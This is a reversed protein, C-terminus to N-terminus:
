AHGRRSRGRWMSLGGILLVLTAPEPNQATAGASDFSRDFGFHESLIALDAITTMGDANFDAAAWGSELGFNESLVALDAIGVKGDLNADGFETDLFDHVLMTLDDFNVIGDVTLDYLWTDSGFAGVLQDIDSGNRQGNSDFDTRRFKVNEVEDIANQSAGATIIADKLLLLDHTDVLGDGNLDAAPNFQTNQSYLVQEFAGDTNAIDFSNISGDFNLDGFGGGRVSGPRVGTIRQINSTGTQEFTVLTFVNNGNPIGFLGTKFVGTAKALKDTAGQGSAVMDHIESDSVTAPLNMLVHVSDATYDVSEVFIDNDGASGGFPTFGSIASVPPLRDVYIAKKFSSYVAPGGDTRHRYARAELFHVGEELGALDITQIFEGDGRPGNIGGPGILPSSKDSFFEFGYSVDGPATVDVVGNHNIDRGGDLRLMANDGDAFVDRLDPNGLLNVPVTQLRVVLHDGKAVHLDTLRQTGNEFTNTPTAGPLVDHVGAVLELGAPAVPTPLGYVLYGKGHFNNDSSNRLFRVNVKNVGGEEFVQVVSPIDDFPDVFPDDANGTLEILYTGPAFGVNTLTRSDFGSDLRNSLLTIASSVREFAYNEKELWREAYNGRGHSNRIQVLRKVGDGDIGGLPDRRSGEPFDREEGFERSNFYVVTNGPMMLTYAYAVENLFPTSPTADHSQVFTVGSSGNHLTDGQGNAPSVDLGANAIDRWDNQFGNGTLNDLMAFALKFDLVDRNGGVRGPDNPDIDKRIFPHLVAPNADFVESFSFVSKQSGDLLLRPNSRYISRDFFDLSFGEIHKAADIRFGDAGVVQVMWQAYRMLLGTVNEEVPDGAMPNELNFSHIPIDSEGTKPDFVFITNHGIDPYLARNDQTPINAIRGAIDPNTGAPINRPDNPDVPHRIARWDTGHDIDILGALRERLTGFDFASNFDGDTNPVGFPDGGGDPNQIFFGPYAGSEVFGPTTTDSFGNHNIILDPYYNIDGARDWIGAMRKVGRATGYLTPRTPRGLDFRDYVDYGVSFDSIDARGPPPTWVGGYGAMFLDPTREIMTDYSAEFWQLTAPPSVDFQARAAPAAFATVILALALSRTFRNM